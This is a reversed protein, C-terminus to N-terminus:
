LNLVQCMLRKNTVAIGKPYGTTGSTFNVVIVDDEEMEEPKLVVNSTKGAVTVDKLSLIRVGGDELSKKLDDSANEPDFIVVNQVSRLERDQKM